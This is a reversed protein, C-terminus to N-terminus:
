FTPADDLGLKKLKPAIVVRCYGADPNQEFYDQHYDEAEYFEDLPTVETVIPDDYLEQSQERVQLAIAKQEETEYFVASRYQTGTDAGQRNLTTPDHSKFFIQLIEEYSIKSSDYSVRVVEAHGTTGTTVQRYTPNAVTGGAYGSVASVIGDIREYVAEVCWFCGGGLIATEINESQVESMDAGRNSQRVYESLDFGKSESLLPVLGWVIGIAVILLVVPLYKM